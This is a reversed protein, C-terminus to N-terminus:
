LIPIGDAKTQTRKWNKSIMLRTKAPCMSSRVMRPPIPKPLMVTLKNAMEKISDIFETTSVILEYAAPLPFMRSAPMM